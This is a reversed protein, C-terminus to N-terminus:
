EEISKPAKESKESRQCICKGQNQEIGKSGEVESGGWFRGEQSRCGAKATFKIEKSTRKRQTIFQPVGQGKGLGGLYDTNQFYINRIVHKVILVFFAVDKIINLIYLKFWSIAFGVVIKKVEYVRLKCTREKKWLNVFRDTEQQTLVKCLADGTQVRSRRYESYLLDLEADDGINYRRHEYAEKM